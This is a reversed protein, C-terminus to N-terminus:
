APEEWQEVAHHLSMAHKGKAEARMHGGRANQTDPTPWNDGSPASPSAPASPSEGVLEAWLVSFGYAAQAPVVGNGTLRLRATRSLDVLEAKRRAVELLCDVRSEGDLSQWHAQDEDPLHQLLWEQLETERLAQLAAERAEARHGRALPPAIHSLLRLADQYEFARQEALESGRSTSDAHGADRVDRVGGEYVQLGAESQFVLAHADDPGEGDGGGHVGPRLVEAARVSGPKRDEDQTFQRGKSGVRSWLEFLEEHQLQVVVSTHNIPWNM